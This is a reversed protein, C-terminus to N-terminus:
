QGTRLHGNWPLSEVRWDIGMANAMSIIPSPVLLALAFAAMLLKKTPRSSAAPGLRSKSHAVQLFGLYVETDQGVQTAGFGVWESRLEVFAEGNPLRLTMGNM